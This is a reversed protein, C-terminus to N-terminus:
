ELAQLRNSRTSLRQAPAAATVKAPDVM